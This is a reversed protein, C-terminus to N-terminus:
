GFLSKRMSSFLKGLPTADIDAPIELAGQQFSGDAAERRAHDVGLAPPLEGRIVNTPPMAGEIHDASNAPDTYAVQHRTSDEPEHPAPVNQPMYAPPWQGTEFPWHTDGQGAKGGKAQVAHTKGHAQPQANVKRTTEASTVTDAASAPTLPQTLPQPASAPVPAPLPAPAATPTQEGIALRDGGNVPHPAATSATGVSESLATGEPLAPTVTLPDIQKPDELRAYQRMPKEISKNIRDYVSAVSRATHQGDYFVSQNKHAAQPLLSAAAQSPDEDRAKLIKAAGGPGLFHAMYLDTSNVTRGLTGELYAKNEKAYEGAMLSAVRPDRRLDLIHQRTAADSIVYEGRKGRSIKDALDGLGHEAGHNKILDFWTNKTFQFLGAASSSRNKSNNEFGSEKGAQAMLYSFSVGTDRSAKQIHSAVRNAAPHGQTATASSIQISARDDTEKM